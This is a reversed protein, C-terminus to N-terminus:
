NKLSTESATVNILPPSSSSALWNRRSLPTTARSVNNGHKASAEATAKAAYRIKGPKEHCHLRTRPHTRCMNCWYYDYDNNYKLMIDHLM